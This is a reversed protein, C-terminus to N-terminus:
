HSSCTIREPIGESTEILMKSNVEGGHGLQETGGGVEQERAM